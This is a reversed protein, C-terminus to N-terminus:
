TEFGKRFSTLDLYHSFARGAGTGELRGLNGRGESCRDCTTVTTCGDSPLQQPGPGSSPAERTRCATPLSRAPNPCCRASLGWGREPRLAPNRRAGAPAERALEAPRRTLAQRSAPPAPEPALPLAGQQSARLRCARPDPPCATATSVGPSNPPLPNPATGPPPAARGQRPRPNSPRRHCRGPSRTPFAFGPGPAARSPGAAARAELRSRSTGPPQSPSRTPAPIVTAAAPAATRDTAATGPGASVM